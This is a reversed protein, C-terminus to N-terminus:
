QALTSNSLIDIFQRIAPRLQKRSTYTAFIDLSSTEYGEFLKMINPDTDMFDPMTFIYDNAMSVEKLFWPNTAILKPVSHITLAASGSKEISIENHYNQKPRLLALPSSNLQEINTLAAYAGDKRCYFSATLNCVKKAVIDMDGPAGARIALDYGEHVLDIQRNTLEVVTNCNPFQSLFQAIPKALLGQGFTLPVSIKLTGSPSDKLSEILHEASEAEDIMRQAHQVMLKGIETIHLSRTTRDFFRVDAKAEMAAIRRSFTAVPMNMQRAARAFSGEKAAKVLAYADSLQKIIM